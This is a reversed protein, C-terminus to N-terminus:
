PVGSCSACPRRQVDVGAQDEGERRAERALRQKRSRYEDYQEVPDVYSQKAKRYAEVEAACADLIRGKVETAVVDSEDLNFPSWAKQKLVEKPLQIQFDNRHVDPHRARVYRVFRNLNGQIISYTSSSYGLPM